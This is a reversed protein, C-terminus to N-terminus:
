RRTDESRHRAEDSPLPGGWRPGNCSSQVRPKRFITHTPLIKWTLRDHNYQNHRTSPAPSTPIRRDPTPTDDDATQSGSPVTPRSRGRQPGRRLRGAPGGSQPPRDDPGPPTTFRPFSPSKRGTRGARDRPSSPPGIRGPPVPPLWGHTPCTGTEADTEADMGTGGEERGRWIEDRARLIPFKKAMRRVKKWFRWSEEPLRRDSITVSRGANSVHAGQHCVGTGSSCGRSSSRNNRPAPRRGSRDSRNRRIRGGARLTAGRTIGARGARRGSSRPSPARGSGARRSGVRGVGDPRGRIGSKAPLPSFLRLSASKPGAPIPRAVATTMRSPIMLISV